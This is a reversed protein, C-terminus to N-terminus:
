RKRCPRVTAGSGHHAEGGPMFNLLHCAAHAEMPLPAGALVVGSQGARVLDRALLRMTSAKVSSAASVRDLDFYDLESPDLGAPLPLSHERHMLRALAFALSTMRSPRAQIREDANAGTLTMHGEVVWLRNMPDTPTSVGRRSAFDNILVPADPEVGLTPNFSLIVDARRLDTADDTASCLGQPPWSHSPRGTGLCRTATPLALRLDYLLM